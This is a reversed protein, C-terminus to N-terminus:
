RPSIAFVTNNYNGDFIWELTTRIKEPKKFEGHNIGPAELHQGQWNGGSNTQSHAPVVGDSDYDHYLVIAHFEQDTCYDDCYGPPPSSAYCAQWQYSDCTVVTEYWTVYETYQSGIVNEWGVNSDTNVWNRGEEWRGKRMQHFGHLPLNAWSLVEEGIAIYNYVDKETINKHLVFYSLNYLQKVQQM